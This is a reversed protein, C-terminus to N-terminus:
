GIESIEAAIRSVVDHRAASVAAKIAYAFAEGDAGGHSKVVIGNLGLLMAGNYRDPDLRGLMRKIGGRLLLGGIRRILSSRATDKFASFILDATGEMAKLMVNGTFGDTVVVDVKGALAENAEVYGHFNVKSGAERLLACAERVAVTGKVEEEGINILGVKPDSRGLVTKAFAVGMLAFQFLAYANCEVNAGLDVIVFSDKKSPAATVIAPRDIDQMTGLVCRSVAMLAGTNGASVMGKVLGKKVDEVAKWMSSNRRHRLAYSPRDSALVADAVDIFVSNAVVRKYKSLVPLVVDGKGYISFHVRGECPIAGSLVLDAGEIVADPAADGGMADLALSLCEDQGETM